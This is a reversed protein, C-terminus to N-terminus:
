SAKVARSSFRSGEKLPAHRDVYVRPPWEEFFAPLYYEDYIVAADASVQGRKKHSM